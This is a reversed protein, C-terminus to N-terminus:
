GSYNNDSSTYSRNVSIVKDIEQITKGGINFQVPQDIKKILEKLLAVVESDSNNKSANSVSDVITGIPNLFAMAIKGLTPGGESESSESKSKLDTGAIISDDKHLQYTGKEGSVILGGDPAIHADAQVSIGKAAKAEAKEKEESMKSSVAAIGAIVAIAGIGLTMASMASMEAIAKGAAITAGILAKANLVGYILAVGGLIQLLLQTNEMATAIFNAFTGLPGDVISAFTEKIRMITEDMKEQVSAQQEQLALKEAEAENLDGSKILAQRDAETLESMNKIEKGGLAVSMKQLEGTKVLQDVTTGAAAAIAEKQYMEMNLFEDYSGAQELAAAAAGAIDGQLALQRAANMNMSKGTLVNAKMENEISTEFDLLNKSISSAEDLTMGLKKAQIVAKTLQAVNGKYTALQSKSAKAVEKTIEKFNLSDGTMQNYSETMSRVTGLVQESTKGTGISMQQFAAAEAGTMGYQKTLLVQTELMKENAVTNQGTLATLEMYAEGLAKSNAGMVKSTIAMEQFNKRLAYSEDKSIGLGKAMTTVEEDVDMGMKFAMVAAGIALAAISAKTFAKNLKSVGSESKKLGEDVEEVAEGAKDVGTKTDDVLGNLTDLTDASKKLENDINNISSGTELAANNTSDMSDTIEESAKVADEAGFDMQTQAPKDAIEEAGFDMQTQAPESMTESAAVESKEIDPCPTSSAICAVSAADQSAAISHEKVEDIRDLSALKNDYEEELHIRKRENSLDEATKIESNYEDQLAKAAAEAEEQAAKDKGNFMDLISETMAEKIEDLGLAASLIGGVIPIDDLATEIDDLFGLSSILSQQYKANSKTIADQADAAKKQLPVQEQHLKNIRKAAALIQITQQAGEKKIQLNDKLIKYEQENFKNGSNLLHLKREELKKEDQLYKSIDEHAKITNKTNNASEQRLAFMSKELDFQKLSDQYERKRAKEAYDTIIKLREETEENLGSQTDIETTTKKSKETKKESNLNKAM